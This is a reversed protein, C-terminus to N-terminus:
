TYIRSKKDPTAALYGLPDCAWMDNRPIAGRRLLVQVTDTDERAEVPEPDSTAGSM